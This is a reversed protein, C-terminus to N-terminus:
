RKKGNTENFKYGQGLVEEERRKVRFPTRLYLVKGREDGASKELNSQSWSQSKETKRRVEGKRGKTADPRENVGKAVKKEARHQRATAGGVKRVGCGRKDERPDV